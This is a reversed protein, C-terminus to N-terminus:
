KLDELLSNIVTHVSVGEAKATYSVAMRHQLVAPALAIVDDVSPSFRGQLLARARVALILAQSARPGPGWTVYNQALANDSSKPRARRVLKLIADIIQDTVPIDRVLEQVRMLDTPTLVTQVEHSRNDTTELLIRRETEADPYDVNIQLLFRDLQAEPLPYTGEQEIPNQTALVHFPEPLDYTVGAITVRKEQMAQLLASQTRPSARNIEDAMLLQSFVPGKVFQFQQRGESNTELIESGLIDAPMLDPTFQVRKEDMGFVAGLTEALKTKALGPVGILLAHGGAMLTIISLEVVQEQGFIQGSIETKLQNFKLSLNQLEERTNKEAAELNEM